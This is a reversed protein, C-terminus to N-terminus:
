LFMFISAFILFRLIHVQKNHESLMNWKALSLQIISTVVFKSQLNYKRM